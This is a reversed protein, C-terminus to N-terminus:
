RYAAKVRGWSAPGVDAMSAGYLCRFLFDGNVLGFPTWNYGFYSWNPNAKTQKTDCYLTDCAPYNSPQKLLVVFPQTSTWSYNIASSTVWGGLTYSFLQPGWVKAGPTGANWNWIEIYFGDWGTQRPPNGVYIKLQQIYGPATPVFKVGWGDDKNQRYVPQYAIGDDYYLWTPPPSAQAVATALALAACATIALTRLM